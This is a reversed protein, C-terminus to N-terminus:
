STVIVILWGGVVAVTPPGCVMQARPVVAPSPPLVGVTPVPEHDTTLPPVPLKLGFADVGFAVKVCAVPTPGTTRRQVMELEGRRGEAGSTVIVILWGGVVAVTPPGCVMQARPVVAPSPPLVGVTPVPEHDTTLPPVPLKLGFADVGFAVKVCAVPTPGT